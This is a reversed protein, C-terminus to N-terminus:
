ISSGPGSYEEQTMRSTRSLLGARVMLRRWGVTVLNTSPGVNVEWPRTTPVPVM